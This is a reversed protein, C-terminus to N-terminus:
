GNNFIQNKINDPLKVNGSKHPKMGNKLEIAKSRLNAIVDCNSTQFSYLGREKAQYVIDLWKIYDPNLTMRPWGQMSLPLIKKIRRAVFDYKAKRAKWRSIAASKSTGKRKM